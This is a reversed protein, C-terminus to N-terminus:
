KGIRSLIKGVTAKVNVSGDNKGFTVAAGTSTNRAPQGTNAGGPERATLSKIQAAPKPGNFGNSSSSHKM